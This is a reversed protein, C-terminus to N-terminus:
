RRKVKECYITGNKEIALVEGSQILQDLKARTLPGYGLALVSQRDIGSWDEGQAQSGGLSDSLGNLYLIQDWSYGPYAASITELIWSDRSGADYLLLANELSQKDASSSASGSNGSKGRATTQASLDALQANWQRKAETTDMGMAELQSFDGYQAALVAQQYKRNYEDQTMQYGWESNYREDGVTDRQRSYDFNRTNWMDSMADRQTQYDYNRTNWYDDRAWSNAQNTYTNWASMSDRGLDAQYQALQANGQLRANQIESDLDYIANTRNTAIDGQRNQLNAELGIKHSDAMGGSYGAATLQQPLKQQSQMYSIYAERALKDADDNVGRRRNELANVSAETQADIANKAANYSQSYGSQGYFDDYSGYTYPSTYSGYNSSGYASGAPIWDSGDSGGSYGAQARVAEAGAHATAMGAQDGAAKSENYKRGWEEVAAKQEPTLSYDNHIGTATYAAM